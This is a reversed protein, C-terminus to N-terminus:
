EVYLAPKGPKAKSAKNQPDYTARNNPVVVVECNFEKKLKEINSSFMEVEKPIAYIYIRKARKERIIKLVNRIDEKLQELIKEEEEFEPKIKSEDVKPWDAVSIFTKNGLKHWLEEALHPCFLSFMKLFGELVERSEEKEFNEFLKRLKIIALNYRLNKIDETFEKLTKNFKSETKESSKGIKVKSFYNVVKLIFRFSGEIAKDSWATDKDPSAQSVLYFRLTDAGYKKIIDRPDVINGRSKSMVFGDKGHIMGQHFLKKFPEDINVFGLDRL